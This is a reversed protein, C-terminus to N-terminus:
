KRPERKTVGPIHIRLNMTLVVQGMVQEEFEKTTIIDFKDITEGSRWLQRGNVRMMAVYPGSTGQFLYMQRNEPDCPGNSYVVVSGRPILPECSADGDRLLVGVLSSRSVLANYVMPVSVTFMPKAGDPPGDLTMDDVAFVATELNSIPAAKEGGAAGALMRFMDENSYGGKQAIKKITEAKPM